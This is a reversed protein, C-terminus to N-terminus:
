PSASMRSAPKSCRGYRAGMSSNCRTTSCSKGSRSRSKAGLIVNALAAVAIDRECVLRTRLLFSALLRLGDKSRPSRVRRSYVYRNIPLSDASAGRWHVDNALAQMNEEIGEIAEIAIAKDIRMDTNGNTMTTVAMAPKM